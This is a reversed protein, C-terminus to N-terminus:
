PLNLDGIFLIQTTFEALTGDGADFWLLDFNELLRKQTCGTLVALCQLRPAHPIDQGTEALDNGLRQLPFHGGAHRVRHDLQTHGTCVPLPLLIQGLFLGPLEKLSQLLKGWLHMVYRIHSQIRPHTETFYQRQLHLINIKSTPGDM